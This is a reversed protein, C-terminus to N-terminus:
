PHTAGAQAPFTDLYKQPVQYPYLGGMLAVVVLSSIVIGASLPLAVALARARPAPGARRALACGLHAFVAAVALFYYPVFFLQYPWIQLGAAAFHVNTDLDLMTRGALVAGVHILLFLALYAGSAAQLWALWGTRRKWGAQM